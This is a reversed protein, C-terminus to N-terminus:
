VLPTVLPYSNFASLVTLRRCQRCQLCALLGFSSTADRTLPLVLLSSPTM